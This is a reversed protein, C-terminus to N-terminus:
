RDGRAEPYLFEFGRERNPLFWTTIRGPATAITPVITMEYDALAELKYVPATFFMGYQQLRDPSTVQVVSPAVISFVYTGAPLTVDPIQVPGSFTLFHDNPAGKIEEAKVTVKYEVQQAYASTTFAMVAFVAIVIAFRKMTDEQDCRLARPTRSMHGRYRLSCELSIRRRRITMVGVHEIVGACM